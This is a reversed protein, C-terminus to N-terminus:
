DIVIPADLVLPEGNDAKITLKVIWVGSQSIELTDAEWAGDARQTAVRSIASVDRQAESTLEFQVAKATFPSFDERMLVITARAPGGQSPKITVEAIARGSHIHVFAAGSPSPGTTPHVHNHVSPAMSGLAGVVAIVCLGLGTEIYANRELAQMARSRALKPTLSFRNFAAICVMAAFMGIKLLLLRGYDTTVLDRPAALLNWSNVLGTAFLTGVSVIGLISFRRVTSTAVSDWTESKARRAHDLLLALAPLAGVWYGAAMSHLVDSALHVQGSLGPAAGAHGIFALTGMLAAAAASQQLGTRPWPLLMGLLVALLLRVCWVLGFRTDTVVKWLGGHLGVDLVPVGLIEASVLLLWGGSSLVAVALACWVLKKLRERLRPFSAPATAAAPPEAVFATFFVTGSALATAAIHISRVLVLPDIM